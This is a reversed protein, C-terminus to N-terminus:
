IKKKWECIITMKEDNNSIILELLQKKIEM